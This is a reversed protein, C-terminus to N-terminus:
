ESVIISVVELDDGETIKEAGRGCGPCLDWLYTMPFKKGCDHCFGFANKPELRWVVNSFETKSSIMRLAEGLIGADVGSLMGVEIRVEHVKQGKQRDLSREVLDLINLSLSLEHM